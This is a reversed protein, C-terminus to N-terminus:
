EQQHAELVRKVLNAGQQLWDRITPDETEAISESEMLIISGIEALEADIPEASAGHAIIIETLSGPAYNEMHVPPGQQLYSTCDSQLLSPDPDAPM